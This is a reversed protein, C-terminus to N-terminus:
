FKDNKIKKINRYIIKEFIKRLGFLSFLTGIGYFLNVLFVGIIVVLKDFFSDVYKSIQLFIITCVILFLFIFLSLINKSPYLATICTILFIIMFPLLALFRKLFKNKATFVNLGYVFRQMCYLHLERDEHYVLVNKSFFIKLNKYKDKIRYFFDHDEGIYLEKNMGGISKYLNREIIFNSSDLWDCLRSTSKYKLFNYHATVFFSRKCYYSIRQFYNQNKFPINPGGVVRFGKKLIKNANGLWNKSPCADSDIFAVYKSNFKSVAINRKESMNIKKKEIIINILFKFKKLESINIKNELILTVFFNKYNLSSIGTLCRLLRFDTTISPIVINVSKYM